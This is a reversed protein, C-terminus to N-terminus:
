NDTPGSPTVGLQNLAGLVSVFFGAFALPLIDGGSRPSLVLCILFEALLAIRVLAAAPSGLRSGFFGWEPDSSRVRAAGFSKGGQIERNAANVGARVSPDLLMRFFLGAAFTGTLLTMPWVLVAHIQASIAGAIVTLGALSAVFSSLPSVRRSIM